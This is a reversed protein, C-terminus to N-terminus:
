IADDSEQFREWEDRWFQMTDELAALATRRTTYFHEVAWLERGLISLVGDRAIEICLCRPHRHPVHGTVTAEHIGASTLIWGKTGIAPTGKVGDPEYTVDEIM